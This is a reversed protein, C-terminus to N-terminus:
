GGSLPSMFAIEEPAALPADHAVFAHDVVVRLFRSRLAEGLVPDRESLWDRLRGLCDIEGPLDVSMESCGALDRIPGFFLLKTM